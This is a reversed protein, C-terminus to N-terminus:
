DYSEARQRDLFYAEEETLGASDELDDAIADGLKTYRLYSTYAGYHEYANVFNIARAEEANVSARLGAFDADGAGDSAVSARWAVVAGVVTVVAILIGAITELRSENPPAENEM